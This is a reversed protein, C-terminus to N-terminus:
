RFCRDTWRFRGDIQFAQRGIQLVQRDIKFAQRDIQLVQRVLM